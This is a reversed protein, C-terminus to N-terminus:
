GLDVRAEWGDSTRRTASEVGDYAMGSNARYLAREISALVVDRDVQPAGPRRSSDFASRHGTVRARGTADFDVGFIGCFDGEPTYITLHM